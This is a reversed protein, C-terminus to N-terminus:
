YLVLNFIRYIFYTVQVGLWLGIFIRFLLWVGAASLLFKLQPSESIKKFCEEVSLNRMSWWKKLTRKDNCNM